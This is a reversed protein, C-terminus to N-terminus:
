PNFALPKPTLKIKREGERWKPDLIDEYFFVKVHVMYM